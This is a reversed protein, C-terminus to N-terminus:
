GGHKKEYTWPKGPTYSGWLWDNRSGGSGRTLDRLTGYTILAPAHYPKRPPDISTDHNLTSGFTDTDMDM